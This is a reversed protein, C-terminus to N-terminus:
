SVRGCLLQLLIHNTPHFENERSPLQDYALKLGGDDLGQYLTFYDVLSSNGLFHIFRFLFSAIMFFLTYYLMFISRRIIWIYMDELIVRRMFPENM